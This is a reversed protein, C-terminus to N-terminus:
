LVCFMFNRFRFQDMGGFCEGVLPASSLNEAFHYEIALFVLGLLDLIAGM